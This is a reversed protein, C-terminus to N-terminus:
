GQVAHIVDDNLMIDSLYDVVKLYLTEFNLIKNM